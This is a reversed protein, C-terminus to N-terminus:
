RQILLKVFDPVALRTAAYTLHHSDSFLTEGEKVAFCNVGDCTYRTMDFTILESNQDGKRISENKLQEAIDLWQRITKVHSTSQSDLMDIKGFGIQKNAWLRPVDFSAAAVPGVWVVKKGAALLYRILAVVNELSRPDGWSLALVYTRVSPQTALWTEISRNFTTCGRSDPAIKVAPSHFAECEPMWALYGAFRAQLAAEDLARAIHQAHSDGWLIFEPRSESYGMTCFFDDKQHRSNGPPSNGPPLNWCRNRPIATQYKWDFARSVHDPFRQPFGKTRLTVGLSVLALTFFLAHGISLRKMTWWQKSQFRVPIEVFRWTLYTLVSSIVLAICITTTVDLKFAYVQSAQSLAVWVPWHWLYLSYSSEGVAQVIPLRFLWRAPSAQIPLLILGATCIVPVFAWFGPWVMNKPAFLLFGVLILGLFFGVFGYRANKSELRLELRKLPSSGTAVLAGALFEWIRAPTSYFLKEASLQAALMYVGSVAFLLGIAARLQLPFFKHIVLLYLPLLIYFQWEVALTWTHLLPKTLASADFYGTEQAYVLNSVFGIAGLVKRNYATFDDPMFFLWAWVYTAFIVVVLAPVIRRIRSEFFVRLSFQGLEIKEIIQKCILYGSIVFFIDVGIFGKSFGPVGYHFGIVILVALARLGNIDHRFDQSNVFLLSAKINLAKNM